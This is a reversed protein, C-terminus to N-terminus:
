DFAKLQDRDSPQDEDLSSRSRVAPPPSADHDHRVPYTFRSGEDLHLRMPRNLPKTSSSWSRPGISSRDHRSRAAIPFNAHHFRRWDIPPRDVVSWSWSQPGIAAWDHTKKFCFNLSIQWLISAVITMLPDLRRWSRDHGDIRRWSRM